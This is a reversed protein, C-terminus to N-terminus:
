ARLLSYREFILHRRDRTCRDIAAAASPLNCIQVRRCASLAAENARMAVKETWPDPLVSTTM